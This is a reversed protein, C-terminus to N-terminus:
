KRKGFRLAGAALNLGHEDLGNLHAPLHGRKVFLQRAQGRM